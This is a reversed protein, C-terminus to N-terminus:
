RIMNNRPRRKNYFLTETNPMVFPAHSVKKMRVSLVRRPDKMEYGMLEIEYGNKEAFEVYFSEKPYWMGHWWWDGEIPTHSIFVGGVKCADHINKWVPLQETVHETTGINTVMDFEGLKIPKQLDLNLCDPNMGNWDISTHEIGISQFYEKYTVGFTKKNGLELMTNGVLPNYYKHMDEPIPNSEIVTINKEM